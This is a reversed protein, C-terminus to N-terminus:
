RPASGRRVAPPRRRCRAPAAKVPPPFLNRSKCHAECPPRAPIPNPRTATRVRATDCCCDNWPRPAALRLNEAHPIAADDLAVRHVTKGAFRAEDVKGDAAIVVADAADIQEASLTDRVGAILISPTDSSVHNGVDEGLHRLVRRAVDRMDAARAALLPDPLAALTSARADSARHWAWAAGHGGAISRAAEGILEADNLLERQADFIAGQADGLRTRTDRALTDLESVTAALAAELRRTDALADAPRDAIDLVSARLVRLPGVAFGPGASIGDIVTAAIHASRRLRQKRV